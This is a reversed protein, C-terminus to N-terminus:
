GSKAQREPAEWFFFAGFADFADFAGREHAASFSFSERRRGICPRLASASGFLVTM